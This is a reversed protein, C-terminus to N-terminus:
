SRLVSAELETYISLPNYLGTSTDGKATPIKSLNFTLVDARAGTDLVIAAAALVLIPVSFRVANPM